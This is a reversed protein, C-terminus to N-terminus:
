KQWLMAMQGSTSPIEQFGAAVAAKISAINDKRMSAYIKSYKSEECAKKYAIRGIGKGQSKRNIFIQIDAKDTDKDYNIFVKGARVSQHFIHWFFGGPMGGTERGGKGQKLIVDEANVREGTRKKTPPPSVYRRKNRKSSSSKKRKISKDKKTGSIKSTSRSM